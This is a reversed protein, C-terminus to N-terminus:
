GGAHYAMFRRALRKYGAKMTWKEFWEAVDKATKLNPIEVAAKDAEEDMKAYGEEAM